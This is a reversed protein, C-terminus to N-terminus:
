PVTYARGSGGCEPCATIRKTWRQNGGWPAPVTCEPCPWVTIAAVTTTPLYGYVAALVSALKSPHLRM